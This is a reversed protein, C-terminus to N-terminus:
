RNTIGHTTGSSLVIFQAISKDDAMGAPGGSTQAAGCDSALM